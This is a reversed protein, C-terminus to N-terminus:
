SSALFPTNMYDIQYTKKLTIWEEIQIKKLLPICAQAIPSFLIVGDEFTSPISAYLNCAGITELLFSHYDHFFSSAIILTVLVWNRLYVM